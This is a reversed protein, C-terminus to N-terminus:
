CEGSKILERKDSLVDSGEIDALGCQLLEKCLMPKGLSLIAEALRIVAKAEPRNWNSAASAM